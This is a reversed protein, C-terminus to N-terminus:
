VFIVSLVTKSKADRDVVFAVPHEFAIDAAQRLQDSYFDPRQTDIAVRFPIKDHFKQYFDDVAQRPEKFIAVM